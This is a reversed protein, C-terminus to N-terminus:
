SRLRKKPWAWSSVAVHYQRRRGRRTRGLTLMTVPDAFPSRVTRAPFVTPNVASFNFWLCDAASPRLCVRRRGRAPDHDTKLSTEFLTGFLPPSAIREWKIASRSQAEAGVSDIDTGSARAASARTEPVSM